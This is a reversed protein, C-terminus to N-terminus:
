NVRGQWYAPRRHLHTVAVVLIVDQDINYIVGYPFRRLRCRRTHSSLPHWGTPHACAVHGERAFVLAM